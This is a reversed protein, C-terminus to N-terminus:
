NNILQTIVERYWKGIYKSLKAMNTNGQTGLLELIIVIVLVNVVLVVKLLM